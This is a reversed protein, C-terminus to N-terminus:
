FGLLNEPKFPFPMTYFIAHSSNSYLFKLLKDCPIQVWAEIKHGGTFKFIDYKEQALLKFKTKRLFLLQDIWFESDEKM